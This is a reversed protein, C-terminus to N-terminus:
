LNSRCSNNLPRPNRPTGGGPAAKGRGEQSQGEQVAHATGIEQHQEEIWLPLFIIMDYVNILLDGGYRLGNGVVRM